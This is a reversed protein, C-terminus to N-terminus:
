TVIRGDFDRVSQASRMDVQVVVKGERSMPALHSQRVTRCFACGELSVMVVLAQGQQLAAALEDPLSRAAPLVAQASAPQAWALWPAMGVVWMARLHHRRGASFATLVTNPLNM